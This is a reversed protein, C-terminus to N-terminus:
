FIVYFILKGESKSKKLPTSPADAEQKATIEKNNNTKRKKQTKPEESQYAEDEKVQAAPKAETTQQLAQAQQQITNALNSMM